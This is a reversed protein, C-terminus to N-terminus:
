FKIIYIYIYKSFMKYIKHEGKYLHLFLLLEGCNWCKTNTKKQTNKKGHAKGSLCAMKMTKYDAPM